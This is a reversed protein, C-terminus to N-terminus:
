KQKALCKIIEERIWWTAYTGFKAKMKYSDNILYNKLAKTYGVRGTKFLENFSVQSNIYKSVVGAVLYDGMHIITKKARAKEKTSGTLLLKIIKIEEEKTPYGLKM